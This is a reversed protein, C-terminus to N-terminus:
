ISLKNNWSQTINSVYAPYRKENKAFVINFAIMLDKKEFKKWDDKELPYDIGEWNLKIIFIKNKTIRASDKGFEKHNLALTAACQFCENNNKNIPNITAKKIKIWDPSDIYSGGCNPNKKHCKYYSLYVCHFILAIGRTSTEM